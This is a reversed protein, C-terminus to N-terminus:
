GSGGGMLVRLEHTLGDDCLDVRSGEADRGDLTLRIVGREVGGPNEVIILYTASRYRYTIEFGPWHRPICPNLTLKTGSLQFGLIAQLAVQYLWGASGTYWTWGGRGTHPP